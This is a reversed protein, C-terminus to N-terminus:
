AHDQDRAEREDEATYGPLHHDFAAAAQRAAVDQPRRGFCPEGAPHTCGKAERDTQVQPHAPGTRIIHPGSWLITSDWGHAVLADFVQNAAALSDFRAQEAPHGVKRWTVGFIM